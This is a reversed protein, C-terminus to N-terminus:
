QQSLDKVPLIVLKCTDCYDAEAKLPEMWTFDTLVVSGKPKRTIIWPVRQDKPAWYLRGKVVPLFGKCMENGCKPCKM